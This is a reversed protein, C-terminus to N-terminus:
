DTTVGLKSLLTLKDTSIILSMKSFIGDILLYIDEPTSVEDIATNLSSVLTL